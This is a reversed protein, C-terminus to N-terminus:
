AGLEIELVITAPLAARLAAADVPPKGFHPWGSNAVFHLRDGAVVGLTPELFDAHAALLIDSGTIAKGTENLKIRTIRNPRLGNQIAILDGNHFYLGDIGYPSLTDCPALRSVTKTALDIHFLGMAYDALYLSAGDESLTLGQPSPFNDNAILTEIGTNGPPIYFLKPSLSDSIYITGDEAVAVDGFWHETGESGGEPTWTSKLAGTALDFALVASKGKDTEGLGPTQPTAAAAVILLGRRADVKMGTPSMSKLDAFPQLAGSRAATVIRRDHISSLFFRDGAADFAIGEVLLLTEDSQLTRAAQGVPHANAEIAAALEQYAPNDHLVGLADARGLSATVGLTALQRLFGLATEPEGASASTQAAAFLLGAHNPRIALAQRLLQTAEGHRGEDDAAFAQRTLSRATQYASDAASATTLSALLLAAFAVLCTKLAIDGAHQNKTM